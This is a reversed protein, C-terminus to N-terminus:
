RKLLSFGDNRYLPAQKRKEAVEDVPTDLQSNYAKEAEEAAEQHKCTPNFESYRCQCGVAKLGVMPVTYWNNGQSSEVEYEVGQLSEYRRYNM